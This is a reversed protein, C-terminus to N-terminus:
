LPRRWLQRVDEWRYYPFTKTPIPLRAEHENLLVKVLVPRKPHRYFIIQVNGGMPFAHYAQWNYAVSDLSAVERDMGDLRLAATLPLLVTEHGFRLTAGNGGDAIAADAKAIIDAVLPATMTPMKRKSLPSYSCNTHWRANNSEWMSYIEEPTFYGTLLPRSHSQRNLAIEFLDIFFRMATSKEPKMLTTDALSAILRDPDVRSDRFEHLTPRLTRKLMIAATDYDCPNLIRQLPKGAETTIRLKPNYAAIEVLENTMSLICRVVTTSSANIKGKGSFIEPFNATMRRAIGRHQEAGLPTLRGYNEYADAAEQRLEERLREGAPTLAGLGAASDLLHLPRSYDWESLLWRSGHRGYHEMHFPRYGKPAPTPKPLSSDPYALLNNGALAPNRAIDDRVGASLTLSISLLITLLSFKM